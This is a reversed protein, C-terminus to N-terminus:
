QEIFLTLLGTGASAGDGPNITILIDTAAGYRHTPSTEYSCASTPDSQDAAMLRDPQSLDGVMIQAGDGNFPVDVSLRVGLVMKGAPVTAAVRPSPDGWM